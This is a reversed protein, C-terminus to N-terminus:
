LRSIFNMRWKMKRSNSVLASSPTYPIIIFSTLIHISPGLLLLLYPLFLHLRLKDLTTFQQYNSMEKLELLGWGFWCRSTVPNYNTETCTKALHGSGLGLVAHDTLVVPELLEADPAPNIVSAIASAPVNYQNMISGWHVLFECM